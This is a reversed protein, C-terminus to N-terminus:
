DRAACLISVLAGTFFAFLLAQGPRHEIRRAAALVAGEGSGLMNAIAPIIQQDLFRKPASPGAPKHLLYAQSVM